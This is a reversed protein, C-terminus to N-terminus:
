RHVFSLAHCYIAPRGATKWFRETEGSYRCGSPQQAKYNFIAKGVTRTWFTFNTAIFYFTNRRGKNWTKGSYEMLDTVVDGPQLQMSDQSEGVVRSLGLRVRFHLLSGEESLSSNPLWESINVTGGAVIAMEVLDGVPIPPGCIYINRDMKTGSITTCSNYLHRAKVVATFDIDLVNDLIDTQREARTTRFSSIISLDKKAWDSPRLNLVDEYVVGM